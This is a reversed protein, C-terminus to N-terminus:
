KKTIECFMCRLPFGSYTFKTKCDVCEKLGTVGPTFPTGVTTDIRPRKLSEEPPRAERKLKIEVIDNILKTLQYDSLAELFGKHIDM